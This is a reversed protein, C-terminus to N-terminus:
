SVAWIRQNQTVDNFMFGMALMDGAVTTGPLDTLSREWGLGDLTAWTLTVATGADTVRVILQQDPDPNGEWQLTLDNSQGTLVYVDWQDVDITLTSPNSDDYYAARPQRLWLGRGTGDGSSTHILNPQGVNRIPVGLFRGM